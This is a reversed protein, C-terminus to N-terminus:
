FKKNMAENYSIGHLSLVFLSAQEHGRCFDFEEDNDEDAARCKDKYNDQLAIIIKDLISKQDEM